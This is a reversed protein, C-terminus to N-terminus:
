PIGNDLVGMEVGNIDKQVEIGLDLPIQKQTAKQLLYKM